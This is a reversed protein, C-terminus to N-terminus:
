LCFVSLGFCLIVSPAYTDFYLRGGASIVCSADECSEGGTGQSNNRGVRAEDNDDNNKESVYLAIFVIAMVLFILLIIGLIYKVKSPERTEIVLNSTSTGGLHMEVNSSGM